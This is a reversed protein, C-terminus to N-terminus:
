FLSTSSLPFPPSHAHLTSTHLFPFSGDLPITCFRQGIVGTPDSLTTKSHFHNQVWQPIFTKEPPLFSPFLHLINFALIWVHWREKKEGRKGRLQTQGRSWHFFTKWSCGLRDLSAKLFSGPSLVCRLEREKTDMQRHPPLSAPPAWAVTHRETEYKLFRMHSFSLCILWETLDYQNVAHRPSLALLQWNWARAFSHAFLHVITKLQTLPPRPPDCCHTQPPFFFRVSLQWSHYRESPHFFSQHAHRPLSPCISCLFFTQSSPHFLRLHINTPLIEFPSRSLVVFPHSLTSRTFLTAPPTLAM